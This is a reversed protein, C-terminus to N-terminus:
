ILQENERNTIKHYLDLEIWNYVAQALLQLCLIQSFDLVMTGLNSSTVFNYAYCQFMLQAAAEVSKESFMIVELDDTAHAQRMSEDSAQRFKLLVGRRLQQAMYMAFIGASVMAFMFNGTFIYVLTCLPYCRVNLEFPNTTWCFFMCQDFLTVDKSEDSSDIEAQGVREQVQQLPAPSGCLAASLLLSALPSFIAVFFGVPRENRESADHYCGTM